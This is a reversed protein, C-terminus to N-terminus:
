NNRYSRKRGFFGPPTQTGIRKALKYWIRGFPEDVSM